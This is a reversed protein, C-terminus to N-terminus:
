RRVSSPPAGRWRSFAHTFAATEAYGLRRAVQEVTMGSGLLELALTERVEAVLARYSTGEADLRRRLSRESLALDAAVQAVSPMAGPPRLLRDRVDSAVGTRTRRRALLARCQQEALEATVADAQPLPLDLLAADLVATTRTTGFVPVVGYVQEYAAVDPPEPLALEMRRLPVAAGFVEVQITRLAASDRLSVFRRVAAPVDVPDLHLLLEDGSQEVSLACFAYSLDVYRVGVDLAARLTPSSLLAFGWIGYTTLHYRTGADLGLEPEDGTAAVLNRVVRLEQAATVDPPLADAALGTGALSTEAAVGRDLGLRVLLGVSTASRSTVHGFSDLLHGAPVHAGHDATGLTALM